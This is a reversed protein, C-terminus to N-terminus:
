QRCHPCTNPKCCPLTPFHYCPPKGSVIDALEQAIQQVYAARAPTSVAVLNPKGWPSVDAGPMKAAIYTALAEASPYDFTATAPLEVGFAESIANRLEVAGISDLGAEMLPQLGPSVQSVAEWGACTGQHMCVLIQLDM